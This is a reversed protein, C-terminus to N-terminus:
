NTYMTGNDWRRFSAAGGLHERAHKFAINASAGGIYREHLYTQAFLSAVCGHISHFPALYRAVFAAESFPKGFAAKGTECGLSIFEKPSPNPGALIQLLRIVSVSAKGFQFDTASGHGILVVQQCMGHHQGWLVELENETRLEIMRVTDGPLMMRCYHLVAKALPDLLGDENFDGIRIVLVGFHQTIKSTAVPQSATGDPMDVIVSRDVQKRVTTRYFPSIDNEDLGLLFRQVYVEDGPNFAM